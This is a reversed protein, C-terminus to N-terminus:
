SNSAKQAEKKQFATIKEILLPVVENLDGVASLHALKVIPANADTNLAVIHESDKIGMAHLSAGSIGAAIYLRPSVIKGTQGIQRDHLIWGQDVAPRTGGVSAGLVDALKQIVAFMDDTGVGAGGGVIM